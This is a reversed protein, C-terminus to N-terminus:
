IDFHMNRLLQNIGIGASDNAAHWVGEGREEGDGGVARPEAAVAAAPDFVSDGEWGVRFELAFVAGAHLM